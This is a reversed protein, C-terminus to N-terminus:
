LNIITSIDFPFVCVPRVARWDNRAQPHSDRLGACLLPDHRRDIDAALNAVADPITRM